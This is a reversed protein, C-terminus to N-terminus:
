SLGYAAVENESTGRDSFTHAHRACLFADGMYKAALIVHLITVGKPNLM